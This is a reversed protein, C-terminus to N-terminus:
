SVIHSDANGIDYSMTWVDPHPQLIDTTIDNPMQNTGLLRSLLRYILQYSMSLEMSILPILTWVDTGIDYSMLAGTQSTNVYIPM